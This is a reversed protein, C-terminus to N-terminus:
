IDLRIIKDFPITNDYRIGDKTKEICDVIYADGVFPMNDNRKEEPIIVKIVGQKMKGDNGYIIVSDGEKYIM